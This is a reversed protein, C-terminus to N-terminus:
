QDKEKVDDVSLYESEIEKHAQLSGWYGILSAILTIPISYLSFAFRDEPRFATFVILLSTALGILGAILIGTKVSRGKSAIGLKFDRYIIISILIGGLIAPISGFVLIWLIIGIFSMGMATLFDLSFYIIEGSDMFVSILAGLMLIGLSFLTGGVFVGQLSKRIIHTLSKKSLLFKGCM